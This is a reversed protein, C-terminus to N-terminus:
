SIGLGVTNNFTEVACMQWVVCVPCEVIKELERRLEFRWHSVV